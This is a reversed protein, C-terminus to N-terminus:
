IGIDVTVISVSAPQASRTLAIRRSRFTRRGSVSRKSRSRSRSMRGHRSTGRPTPSARIANKFMPDALYGDINEESLYQANEESCM